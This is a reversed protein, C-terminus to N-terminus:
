KGGEVVAKIGLATGAIDFAQFSQCEFSVGTQQSLNLIQKLSGKLGANEAQLREIEVLCESVSVLGSRRMFAIREPTM